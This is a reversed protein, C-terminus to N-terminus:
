PRRPQIIASADPQSRALQDFIEQLCEESSIPDDDENWGVLLQNHEEESLLPLESLRRDPDRAAGDLLRCYHKIMRVVRDRTSGIRIICLRGM